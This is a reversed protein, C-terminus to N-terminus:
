KFLFIVDKLMIIVALGMILAFGIAKIAYEIKSPIPKRIIMEVLLLLLSGGDLAPIPLLNFIGLNMSIVVILYFLSYADTKAADTIAGTIGVPGSVQEIGYRGTILDFLSDYIMKITSKCSYFSNKVVTGFTRDEGYVRFDMAGFVVGQSLVTPFEVDKLTIKNGERIVTLDVPKYGKRMIEYSLESATNVRTNGVKIIKDNLQLQEISTSNENFQGVVTTGFRPTTATLITMIIIGVLLNMVAGALIIIFRKWASKKNFANPDDSDEDEGVMAVYGGFPLLRLSYAVNDKGTKSFIKPGMGISFEKITVKFIKAFMFHGLEHIFIMFGFIFIALLIYLVIM